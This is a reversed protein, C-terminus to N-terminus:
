SCCRQHKRPQAERLVCHERVQRREESREESCANCVYLECWLEEWRQGTRGRLFGIDGERLLIHALEDIGGKGSSVAGEDEKELSGAEVLHGVEGFGSAHAGGKRIILAGKTQDLEAGRGECCIVPERKAIYKTPLNM